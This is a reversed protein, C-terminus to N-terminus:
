ETSTGASAAARSSYCLRTLSLVVAAADVAGGAGRAPDGGAGAAGAANGREARRAGTRGRDRGAHRTRGAHGPLAGPGAAADDAGGPRRARAGGRRLLPGPIRGAGGGPRAGGEGRWAQVYPGAAITLDFPRTGTVPGFRWTGAQGALPRAIVPGNTLCDWGAPLVLSLTTTAILDSQDFCCFLGPSNTPYGTFLLYGADDAPDTFRSLTGDAVEAEVTLVNQAALGPLALRGDAQGALERGNLVARTATATLEAFSAAGPERCGFRIETRSRVPEATLDAFVDYSAVDILAARAAAETETLAPM